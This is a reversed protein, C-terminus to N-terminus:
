MLSMLNDIHHSGCILPVWIQSNRHNSDIYVRCPFVWGVRWISKVSPGRIVRSWVYRVRDTYLLKERLWWYRHVSGSSGLFFPERGLGYCASQNIRPYTDLKKGLGVMSTTPTFGGETSTLSSPKSSGYVLMRDIREISAWSPWDM